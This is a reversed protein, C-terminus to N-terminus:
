LETMEEYYSCFAEEIAEAMTTLLDRKKAM